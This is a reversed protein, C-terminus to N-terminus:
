SGVTTMVPAGWHALLRLAFEPTRVVACRHGAAHLYNLLDVQNNDPNEWAAKFELFAVGHNWCITLDPVGARLGEKKAKVRDKMGRKGANPVAWAVVSPAHVRLLRLFATQRELEPSTNADKPEVVFRPEPKLPADLADIIAQLQSM